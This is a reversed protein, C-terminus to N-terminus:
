SGSISKAEYVKLGKPIERPLGSARSWITANGETVVVWLQSSGEAEYRRDGSAWRVALSVTVEGHAEHIAQLGDILETIHM